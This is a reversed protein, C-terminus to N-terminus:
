SRGGDPNNERKSFVDEEMPKVPVATVAEAEGAVFGVEEVVTLPADLNDGAAAAATAVEM